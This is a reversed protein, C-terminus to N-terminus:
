NIDKLREWNDRTLSWHFYESRNDRTLFFCMLTLYLVGAYWSRATMKQCKRSFMQYLGHPTILHISETYHSSQSLLMLKSWLHFTSDIFSVSVSLREQVRCRERKSTGACFLLWLCSTCAEAEFQQAHKLITENEGNPKTGQDILWCLDMWEKLAMKSPKKIFAEFVVAFTTYKYKHMNINSAAANEM